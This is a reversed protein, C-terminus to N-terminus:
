EKARGMFTHWINDRERSKLINVPLQSLKYTIDRAQSRLLGSLIFWKKQLFGDSTILDKMVDYHINAIVLDASLDIFDQAKGQFILIRDDLQNLEINRKATKAALFNFDLGLTRKCGLKGAALALIGTGTGLDLVTEIKEEYCLFELLELCDHTTPHTGTGFVVGPDLIIELTLKCPAPQLACPVSSFRKEWPPIIYFNGIQFPTLRGGQWEEYTMNFQDLLILEPQTELIKEVKNRSSASFFLFSFDDEQWNGIFDDGTIENDPNVCGQIYYIYLDNYPASLIKETNPM